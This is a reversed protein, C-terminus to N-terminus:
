AASSRNCLRIVTPLLERIAEDKPVVADVLQRTEEPIMEEGSFIVVPTEPRIRRIEYALQHGNMEPMHYDLLVADFTLMTALRLGERASAATVVFYGSREFLSREYELIGYSDDVCLLVKGPGQDERSMLVGLLSRAVRGTHPPSIPYSPPRAAGEKEPSFGLGFAPVGRGWLTM